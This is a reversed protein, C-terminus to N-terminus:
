YEEDLIDGSIEIDYLGTRCKLIKKSDGIAFKFEYLYKSDVEFEVLDWNNVVKHNYLKIDEQHKIIKQFDELSTGANTDSCIEIGLNRWAKPLKHPKYDDFYGNDFVIKDLFQNKNIFFKFKDELMYEEWYESDNCAECKDHLSARKMVKKPITKGFEMGYPMKSFISKGQLSSLLLIAVLILKKM